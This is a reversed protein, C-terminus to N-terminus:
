RASRGEREVERRLATLLATFDVVLRTVAGESIAQYVATDDHQRDTMTVLHEPSSRLYGDVVDVLFGVQREDRCVLLWRRSIANGPAAILAALDYVAVLQGQVAVLGEFGLRRGPVRTVARVEQVSAVQGLRVAYRGDGVRFTLVEFFNSTETRAPRTFSRDFETRLQALPDAQTQAIM